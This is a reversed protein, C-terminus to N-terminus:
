AKTPLTLHTYSVAKLNHASFSIKSFAQRLDPRLQSYDPLEFDEGCCISYFKLRSSHRIIQNSFHNYKERIITKIVSPSPDDADSLSKLKAIM